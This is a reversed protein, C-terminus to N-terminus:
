TSAKKRRSQGLHMDRLFNLAMSDEEVSLPGHEEMSTSLINRVKSSKKLQPFSELMMATATFYRSEAVSMAATWGAGNRTFVHEPDTAISEALYRSVHPMMIVLQDHKPYLLLDKMNDFIYESVEHREAKVEYHVILGAITGATRGNDYRIAYRLAEPFREAIAMAAVPDYRSESAMIRVVELVSEPDRGVRPLIRKNVELVMNAIGQRPRFSEEPNDRVLSVLRSIRDEVAKRHAEMVLEEREWYIFNKKLSLTTAAPM